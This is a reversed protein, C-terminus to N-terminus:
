PLFSLQYGYACQSNHAYEVWLLQESRSLPNQSVLCQLATERDQMTNCWQVSPPVRLFPQSNGWASQPVGELVGCHSQMQSKVVFLAWLFARSTSSTICSWSLHIRPQLSSPRLCLVLWKAWGIVSLIVTNCRSPPLSTLFDLSTHSWLRHPIPLPQLLHPKTLLSTKNTFLSLRRWKVDLSIHLQIVAATFTIETFHLSNRM